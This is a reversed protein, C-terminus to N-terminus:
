MEKVKIAVVVSRLKWRPQSDNEKTKILTEAICGEKGIYREILMEAHPREKDIQIRDFCCACHLQPTLFM